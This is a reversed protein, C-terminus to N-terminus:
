SQKNGPDKRSDHQRSKEQQEAMIKEEEQIMAVTELTIRGLM